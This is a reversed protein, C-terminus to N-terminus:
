VREQLKMLALRGNATTDVTHGDRRLLRALANAIVPNM